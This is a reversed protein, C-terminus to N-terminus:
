PLSQWAGPYQCGFAFSQRVPVPRQHPAGGNSRGAFRPASRHRERAVLGTSVRDKKRQGPGHQGDRDDANPTSAAKNRARWGFEAGKPPETKLEEIENRIETLVRDRSVKWPRLEHAISQILDEQRATTITSRAGNHASSKRGAKAHSAEHRQHPRQLTPRAAAPRKRRL